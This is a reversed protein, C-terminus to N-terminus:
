RKMRRSPCRVLTHMARSSGQDLIATKPKRSPTGYHTQSSATSHLPRSLYVNFCLHKKRRNENPTTGTRKQKLNNITSSFTLALCGELAEDSCLREGSEPVEGSAQRLSVACLPRGNTVVRFCCRSSDDDSPVM